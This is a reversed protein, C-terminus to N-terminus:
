RGQIGDVLFVLSTSEPAKKLDLGKPLSNMMLDAKLSARQAQGNKIQVPGAQSFAAGMFLSLILLFLTVTRIKM